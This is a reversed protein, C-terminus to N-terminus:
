KLWNNPICTVSGIYAKSASFQPFPFNTAEAVAPEFVQGHKRRIRRIPNQRLGSQLIPQRQKEHLIIEYEKDKFSELTANKASVKTILSKEKTEKDM